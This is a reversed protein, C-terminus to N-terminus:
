RGSCRGSAIDLAFVYGFLYSHFFQKPDVIAGVVLAVGAVGVVLLLTRFAGAASTASRRSATRCGTRTPSRRTGGNGNRAHDDTSM